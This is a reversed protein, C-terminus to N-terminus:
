SLQKLHGNYEPIPFGAARWQDLFGPFDKALIYVGGTKHVREQERCQAETQKDRGIKVEISIFRGAYSGVIDSFGKRTNGTSWKIEGNAMKRPMGTTNIRTAQGLGDPLHNIFNEICRQLGNATTDNYPKVLMNYGGSLEFFGPATAKIYDLKMRKLLQKWNM